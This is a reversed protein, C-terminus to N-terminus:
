LCPGLAFLRVEILIFLSHSQPFGNRLPHKEVGYDTLIMRFNARESFFIGFKLILIATIDAHDRFFGWVFLFPVHSRCPFNSLPQAPDLTTTTPPLPSPLTPFFLYPPPPYKPATGAGIGSHYRRFDMFLMSDPDCMDEYGEVEAEIGYATQSAMTPAGMEFQMFKGAAAGAALTVLRHFWPVPSSRYLLVEILPVFFLL